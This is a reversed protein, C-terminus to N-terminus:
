HWPLANLLHPGTPAISGPAPEETVVIERVGELTVPVTVKVWAIGRSDVTFTAGTVAPAETRVFWLQYTRERPLPNLGSIALHGGGDVAVFIRASAGPKGTGTLIVVRGPRRSLAEVEPGPAPGPARRTLEGQLMVNWFLLSGALAALAPWRLAQLWGPVFTTSSQRHARRRHARAAARIAVWAAPPAPVPDLGVPLAGVVARYEAVRRACSACTVVHTEVRAQESGELSELVYAALNDILSEHEETV